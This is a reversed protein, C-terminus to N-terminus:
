REIAGNMLEFRVRIEVIHAILYNTSVVFSFVEIMYVLEKPDSTMEDFTNEIYGYIYIYEYVMISIFTAFSGIVGCWHRKRFKNPQGLVELTKDISSFSSLISRIKESNKFFSVILIFADFLVLSSCVNFSIDSYAEANSAFKAINEKESLPQIPNECIYVSLLLFMLGISTNYVRRLLVWFKELFSAAETIKPIVSFGFIMGIGLIPFLSSSSTTPKYKWKFIPAM